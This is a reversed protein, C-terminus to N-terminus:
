QDNGGTAELAVKHGIIWTGSPLVAGLALEPVYLIDNYVGAQSGMGEPHVEVQYGLGNEEFVGLVRCLVTEAKQAEARRTPPNGFRVASGNGEPIVFTVASREAGDADEGTEEAVTGALESLGVGAFEPISSAGAGAAAMKSRVAVDPAAQLPDSGKAVSM